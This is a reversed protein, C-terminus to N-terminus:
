FNKEMNIIFSKPYNLSCKYEKEKTMKNITENCVFIFDMILILVDSLSENLSSELSRYKVFSVKPLQWFWFKINRM